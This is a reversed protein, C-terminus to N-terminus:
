AGQKTYLTHQIIANLLNNRFEKIDINIGSSRLGQIIFGMGGLSVLGDKASIRADRQIYYSDLKYTVPIIIEMVGAKSVCEVVTGLSDVSLRM